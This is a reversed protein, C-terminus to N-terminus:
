QPDGYRGANRRLTVLISNNPYPAIKLLVKITYIGMRECLMITLETPCQYLKVASLYPSNNFRSIVDVLLRLPWNLHM